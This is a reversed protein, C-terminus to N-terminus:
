KNTVTPNRDSHHLHPHKSARKANKRRPSASVQPRGTRLRARRRLIRRRRIKVTAPWIAQTVEPSVTVMWAPLIPLLMMHSVLLIMKVELRCPSHKPDTRLNTLSASSKLTWMIKCKRSTKSSGDPGWTVDILGYWLTPGKVKKTDPHTTEVPTDRLQTAMPATPSAPVVTGSLTTNPGFSVWPPIAVSAEKDDAESDTMGTTLNDM